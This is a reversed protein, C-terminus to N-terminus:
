LSKKKPSVQICISTNEPYLETKLLLQGLSAEVSLQKGHGAPM